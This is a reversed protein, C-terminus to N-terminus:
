SRGNHQAAVQVARGITRHSVKRFFNDPGVAVQPAVHLRELPLTKTREQRTPNPMHSSTKQPAAIAPGSSTDTSLSANYATEAVATCNITCYQPNTRNFVWVFNQQLRPAKEMAVAETHAVSNNMQKTSRRIKRAARGRAHSM